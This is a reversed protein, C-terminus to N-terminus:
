SDSDELVEHLNFTCHKGKHSWSRESLMIDELNVPWMNKLSKICHM